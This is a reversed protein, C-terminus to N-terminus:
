GHAVRRQEYSAGAPEARQVGAPPEGGTGPSDGADKHIADMQDPIPGSKMRHIRAPPPSNEHAENACPEMCGFQGSVPEDVADTSFLVRSAGTERQRRYWTARSIGEDEWPRAVALSTALFTARPVSGTKKRREAQRERDAAQKRAKAEKLRQKRPVDCAGITKLGLRTREEMSVHLLRAVHDAPLIRPGRKGTALRESLERAAQLVAADDLWPLWRRAWSDVHARGGAAGTLYALVSPLDDTGRADPVVAGHRARIVKEIELVRLRAPMDDQSPKAEPEHRQTMEALIVRGLKAKGTARAQQRLRAALALQPAAASM